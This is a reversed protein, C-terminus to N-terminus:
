FSTLDNLIVLQVIGDTGNCVQGQVGVIALFFLLGSIIAAM